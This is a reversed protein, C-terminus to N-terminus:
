WLWTHTGEALELCLSWHRDTVRMEGAPVERATKHGGKVIPPSNMIAQLLGILMILTGGHLHESLHFDVM